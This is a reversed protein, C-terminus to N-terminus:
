KAVHSRIYVQLFHYWLPILKGRYSLKVRPVNNKVNQCNVRTTISVGLFLFAIGTFSGMSLLLWIQLDRICSPTGAATKTSYLPTKCTPLVPSKPWDWQLLRPLLCGRMEGQPAPLSWLHPPIILCCASSFSACSNHPSCSHALAATSSSLSGNTEYSIQHFCSIRHELLHTPASPTSICLLSGPSCRQQSKRDVHLSIVCSRGSLNERSCCLCVSLPLVPLSLGSGKGATLCCMCFGDLLSSLLSGAGPM